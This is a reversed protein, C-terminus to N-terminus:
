RVKKPRGPGRKTTVPVTALKKPRGRKRPAVSVVEAVVKKPRGRKRKAPQAEEQVGKARAMRRAQEKATSAELAEFIAKVEAQEAKTKTEIPQNASDLYTIVVETMRSVLEEVLSSKKYSRVPIGLAQCVQKRIQWYIEGYKKPEM